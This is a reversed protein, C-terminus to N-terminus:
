VFYSSQSLVPVCNVPNLVPQNNEASICSYSYLFQPFVSNSFVAMSCLNLRLMASIGCFICVLKIEEVRKWVHGVPAFGM